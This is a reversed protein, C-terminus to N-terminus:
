RSPTGFHAEIAAVLGPITHESAEVHVPLGFERATASTVPGISAVTAAGIETGLLEVFNRVTSSATFTILDVGGSEIARAVRQAAAGDPMTRYAVVDDVMAGMELLAEPLVARATEARALLIRSGRLDTEASLSAVVSEAVYEDPVLDARAGELEIAAATAAGIACLSVGGLVRTDRGSARLESWFRQVGNVSTFVIWDYQEAERVARRLPEPDEPEVIRITPFQIVEAGLRSLATALDSAQARARTVVVRRGFLPRDEYWALSERLQVVEGVVTIAPASIGRAEVLAALTALTGVVTRQRPYTGWEIVAAPTDAPRGEDMLRQCNERLRRVGMYLVVTARSRALQDWAVRSEPKMPDDHGTVFIVSSTIGRHTVPIGAYAPVGIGATVGPVVEFQIGAARLALAEEGGRGFVFPDGGKLRVVREHRGALEAVIRNIEEQTASAQGGRKGVYVVEADESRGALIMPSVLADYVIADASAILEAARVTLLGPDGPGAGVLYVRGRAGM